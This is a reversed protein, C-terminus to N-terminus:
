NKEYLAKLKTQYMKTIEVRGKGNNTGVMGDKTQRLLASHYLLYGKYPLSNCVKFVRYM